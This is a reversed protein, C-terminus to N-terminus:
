NCDMHQIMFRHKGRKTLPISSVIRIDAKIDAIEAFNVRIEEYDSENCETYPVVSVVVRGPENQEIQWRSIRGFAKYHQGFVLATLSVKSGDDSVVYDQTRGQISGLLVTGASEGNYCAIDGTRYRIFPMAYNHFGTVIVEGVEGPKVHLGRDDLVEVYGYLPSCRYEFSDDVTLGYVSAESHGYQLVISADFAKRINAIQWDYVAESTLDVGKIKYGIKIDNQIIYEAISNFFSPYGRLISPKYGQMHEIYLHTNEPRLYLSSYHLNEFSCKVDGKFIWYIDKARLEDPVSSGDFSAILDGTAYGHMNYLMYRHISDVIGAETSIVYELPEGTSGGTNMHYYHLRELEDSIMGVRKQRVVEKDLLPVDTFHDLTVCDLKSQQFIENYYSCHDRAYCLIKSLRARRENEGDLKGDIWLQARDVMDDCFQRNAQMRKARRIWWGPNLASVIQRASKNKTEFLLDTLSM